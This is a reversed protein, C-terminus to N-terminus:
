NVVATKYHHILEKLFLGRAGPFHLIFDGPHYISDLNDGAIEQPYSNIWRQPVIKVFNLLDRHDFLYQRIAAQEWWPHYIFQTLQYSGHLLEFSETCNQLLFQGTNMGNWDCAVVMMARNDIFAELPVSLNMIFSDADSWFIWDYQGLYDQILKIKSWALPRSLDRSQTGCIFDYGHRACYERKNEICDRVIESYETGISATIVAIKLAHVSSMLFLFWVFLCRM